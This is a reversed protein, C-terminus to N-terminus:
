DGGVGHWPHVASRGRPQRHDDARRVGRIRPTVDHRRRDQRHRAAQVRVARSSGSAAARAADDAHQDHPPRGPQPRFERRHDPGCGRRRLLRPRLTQRAGAAPESRHHGGQWRRHPCRARGDMVRRGAAPSLRRRIRAQALARNRLRRVHHQTGEGAGGSVGAARLTRDRRRYQARGRLRDPLPGAPQPGHRAPESEQGRVLSLMGVVAITLCTASRM